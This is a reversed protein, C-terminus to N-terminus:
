KEGEPTIKQFFDRIKQGLKQIKEGIKLGGRRLLGAIRGVNKFQQPKTGPQPGRLSPNRTLSSGPCGLDEWSSWM